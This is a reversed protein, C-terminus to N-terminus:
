GRGWRGVMCHARQGRGGVLAHLATRAEDIAASAASARAQAELVSPYQRSAAEVATGLTLPTGQAVMIESSLTCLALATLVALLLHRQAMRQM